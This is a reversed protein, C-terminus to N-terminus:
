CYYSTCPLIFHINAAPHPSSLFGWPSHHLFTPNSHLRSPHMSRHLPYEPLPFFLLFIAASTEARSRPGHLSTLVPWALDSVPSSVLRQHPTSNVYLPSDHVCLKFITSSLLVLIKAQHSISRGLLYFILPVCIQYVWITCYYLLECHLEM